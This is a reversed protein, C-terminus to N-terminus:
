PLLGLVVGAIIAGVTELMPKGFHIMVYPVVMVFIAHSGM